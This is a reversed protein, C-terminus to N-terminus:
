LMGACLCGLNNRIKLHANTTNTYAATCFMMCAQEVALWTRHAPWALPSGPSLSPLSPWPPLWGAVAAVAQEPLPMAAPDHPRGPLRLHQQARPAAAPIRAAESVCIHRAWVQDSFVGHAAALVQMCSAGREQAMGCLLPLHYTPQGARLLLLPQLQALQVTLDAVVLGEDVLAILANRLYRLLNALDILDELHKGDAAGCSADAFGKHPNSSASRKHNAEAHQMSLVEAM